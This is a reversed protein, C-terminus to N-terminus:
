LDQNGYYYGTEGAAVGAPSYKDNALREMYADSYRTGGTDGLDQRPNENAATFSGETLALPAGLTTFVSSSGVTSFYKLIGDTMSFLVDDTIEIVQTEGWIIYGDQGGSYNGEQSGGLSLRKTIDSLYIKGVNTGLYEIKLTNAM